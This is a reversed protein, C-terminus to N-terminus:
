LEINALKKPTILPLQKEAQQYGTKVPTLPPEEESVISKGYNFHAMILLCSFNNIHKLEM